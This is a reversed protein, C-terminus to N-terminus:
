ALDPPRRSPGPRQSVSARPTAARVRQRGARRRDRHKRNPLKLMILLGANPPGPSRLWSSARRGRLAFRGFLHPHERIRRRNTTTDLVVLAPVVVKAVWGLSRGVRLGIRQKVDIGGLLQQADVILTKVEVVLLTATPPHFALVDIRGRDGYENFSVEARTLWGLTTLRRMLLDACGAHDADALRALDAGRVGVDWGLRLDLASAVRRVIRLSVRELWGREILGIAGASVGARVGLDAQRWGRRYRLMRICRGLTADDM